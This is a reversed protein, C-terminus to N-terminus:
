VILFDAANLTLGPVLRAFHVAGGSESGNADYTLVGTGANYIIRDDGDHAAAGTFFAKAALLGVDPLATFIANELVVVDAHHAFDTITDVNTLPKLATNFVFRDAGPGGSLTDNGGRGSLTDTGGGGCLHNNWRNGTLTDAASGGKANEIVVRYAIALNNSAGLSSFFGDRLDIKIPAVYGGGNIMDTGGADWIVQIGAAPGAYVNDGTHYHLNAGFRAQLAAIDLLMLHGSRAHNDPDVSYSMVTYKNNDLSAPLYPGPSSAGGADYNGPHKLTMAHGVEHLIANRSITGDSRDFVAFSDLSRSTIRGLYDTTYSFRYGAEGGESSSLAVRGFCIDPNLATTEVFRVNIFSAYEALVLRIATKQAATFATWGSFAPADSPQETVFEYTFSLPAKSSSNWVDMGAPMFAQIADIYIAPLTHSALGGNTPM